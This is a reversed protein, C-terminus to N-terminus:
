TQHTKLTEILVDPSDTCILDVGFAMAQVQEETTNPPWAIVELHHAHAEDVFQQTLYDFRCSVRTAAVSLARSVADDPPNGFIHEVRIDADLDRLRQLVATDGSTLIAQNRMTMENVIRLAPELATPDKLEVHVEAKNVVLEFLEQLTPIQQGKGADLKRIDEFTYDGPAGAGNTTRDVNHDHMLIAHGDKTMHVDCEVVNVGLDLAKQFSLLTNEPELNRAGRHGIIRIKKAPQPM